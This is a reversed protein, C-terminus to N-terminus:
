RRLSSRLVTLSGFALRSRPAVVDVGVKQSAQMAISRRTEPSENRGGGGGGFNGGQQQPRVLKKYAKGQKSTLEDVKEFGATIADDGPALPKKDGKHKVLVNGDIGELSVWYSVNGYTDKDPEGHVATVLLSM